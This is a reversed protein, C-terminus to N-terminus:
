GRALTIVIVRRAGAECLARSCEHATSGTTFVDDILLLDRDRIKARYRHPVKFAGRLNEMRQDRRYLTQSSTYRTRRLANLCPVGNISRLQRALEYSQNFERERYRRHHLPVPVALFTSPEALRPDLFVRGMLEGLLTRLFQQQHYKFRHVLERLLGRSQYAAVAFEFAFRRGECTQCIFDESEQPQYPEGCIQCCPKECPWLQTQCHDCLVLQGRDNSANAKHCYPCHPPYGLDLAARFSSRATDIWAPSFM